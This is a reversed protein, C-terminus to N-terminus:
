RFRRRVIDDVESPRVIPEEQDDSPEDVYGQAIYEACSRYDAHEKLHNREPYEALCGICLSQLKVYSIKKKVYDIPHVHLFRRANPASFDNCCGECYYQVQDKRIRSIQEWDKPYMNALSESEDYNDGYRVWSGFYEVDFFNKLEFEERRTEQVGDLLSNVKMFCNHCVLLRQSEVEILTTESKSSRSSKKINFRYFFKGELRQAVQLPRKWGEKEASVLANCRMLHIENLSEIKKVERIGTAPVTEELVQPHTCDYLAVRVAMGSQPHIYYIGEHTIASNVPDFPQGRNTLRDELTAIEQAVYNIDLNELARKLKFFRTVKM